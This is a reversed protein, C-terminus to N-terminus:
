HRERRTVTADAYPNSGTSRSGTTAPPASAGQRELAKLYNKLLNTLQADDPRLAIGIPEVTFTKELSKLGSGPHRLEAFHCTVLDALLADARDDIVFPVAEDSAIGNSGRRHAAQACGLLRLSPPRSRESRDGFDIHAHDPIPPSDQAWSVTPLM